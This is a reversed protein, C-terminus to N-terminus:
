QFEKFAFQTGADTQSRDMDWWVLEHLKVLKEQFMDLKYMVEDTTINEM